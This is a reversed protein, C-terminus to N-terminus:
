STRSLWRSRTMRWVCTIGCEGPATIERAHEDVLMYGLAAPVRGSATNARDHRIEVRDIGDITFALQTLAKATEQAYGNGVHDVHVWYGIELGDDGIRRHLGAGGSVGGDLAFIGFQSDGGAEWEDHWQAILVRRDAAAVPELAAWPMWPLLHEVSAAIAASFVPEDAITWARLILRESTAFVPLRAM